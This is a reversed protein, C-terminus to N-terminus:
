LKFFCSLHAWIMYKWVKSFGYLKRNGRRKQPCQVASLPSNPDQSFSVHFASPILSTMCHRSWFNVSHLVIVGHAESRERVLWNLTFLGLKEGEVQCFKNKAYTQVVYMHLSCRCHSVTHRWILNKVALNHRKKVLQTIYSNIVFYGVFILVERRFRCNYTSIGLVPVTNTCLLTRYWQSYVPTLSPQWFILEISRCVYPFCVHFFIYM